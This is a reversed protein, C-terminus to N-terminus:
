SPELSDPRAPSRELLPTEASGVGPGTSTMMLALMAIVTPAIQLLARNLLSGDFAFERTSEPGCTIGAFVLVLQSAATLALAAAPGRRTERNAFAACGAGFAIPWLAGWTEIRLGHRVLAVALPPTSAFACTGLHHEVETIGGHALLWRWTAFPIAAAGLVLAPRWAGRARDPLTCIAAAFVIGLVHAMGEDKMGALVIALVIAPAIPTARETTERSPALALAISAALLGVTLDLYASRIHVLAMPTVLLAVTSVGVALVAGSERARAAERVLGLWSAAAALTVLAAAATLPARDFPSTLWAVLWSWFLPYGRPFVGAHPDLAAARLAGWSDQEVRSKWLWVFEDWYIPAAPRTFAVLALVALSVIMVRDANGMTARTAPSAARRRALRMTVPAALAVIVAMPHLALLGAAAVAVFFRLPWRVYGLEDCRLAVGRDLGWGLAVFTALAPLAFLVGIV